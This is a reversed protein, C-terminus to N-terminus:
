SGLGYPVLARLFYEYQGSVLYIVRNERVKEMKLSWFVIHLKLSSVLLDDGCSVVFHGGVM